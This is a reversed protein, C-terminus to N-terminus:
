MALIPEGEIATSPTGDVGVPVDSVLTVYYARDIAFTYADAALERHAARISEHAKDWRKRARV